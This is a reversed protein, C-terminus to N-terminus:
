TRPPKGGKEPPQGRILEGGGVGQGREQVGGGMGTPLGGTADGFGISECCM